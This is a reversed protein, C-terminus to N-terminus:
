EIGYIKLVSGSAIRGTGGSNMAVFLLQTIKGDTLGQDHASGFFNNIDPGTSPTNGALYSEGMAIKIQGEVNNITGKIRINYRGVVAGSSSAMVRLQNQSYNRTMSYSVTNVNQLVHKYIGSNIGNFRMSIYSPAITDPIYLEFRLLNPADAPLDAIIYQTTSTATVQAILSSEGTTPPLQEQPIKGGVLDAKNELEGVINAISSDTNDLRNEATDLRDNVDGLGIQEATVAHPNDLDSIHDYAIKGRDGRYATSSTEGLAVGGSSIEVYSSGGWRYAKNTETDLYVINAMGPNPFTALTGEQVNDVYSPLLSEPITGDVTKVVDQLSDNLQSLVVAEDNNIAPNFKGQGTSTRVVFTSSSPTNNYAWPAFSGISNRTLVRGNITLGIDSPLIKRGENGNEGGVLFDDLGLQPSKEDLEDPTVAGIEAPTPFSITVHNISGGVGDGTVSQVGAVGDGNGGGGSFASLADALEELSTFTAGDLTTDITLKLASYQSPHDLIIYGNHTNVISFKGKPITRDFKGNVHAIIAGENTTLTVM